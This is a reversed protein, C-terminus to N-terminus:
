EPLTIGLEALRAPPPVGGEDWGHRKYYEALLEEIVPLKGLAAGSELPDHVWRHPLGDPDGEYRVALLREFTVIREGLKAVEVGSFTRGLTASLLETVESPAVQYAMLALRRCVGAADIAAAFREHWILRPVAGRIAQPQSGDPLWPPPEPLLGEYSMAYRYDSGIPSAAYALALDPRARPDLAPLAMGKVQPAFTSSGYYVDQMEGVGLALLDRKEQRQGLRRLTAVVADGDGWALTGARSLGKEQCEMMFAIAASAAVVDLGLRVCLDNAIIITDPNAIGCAGGFGAIAELEPYAMPEGNRRIYTTACPLPCGDCAHTERRGRQALVGRDIAQAHPIEGEGGNKYSLMGQQQAAAAYYSSGGYQKIGAAVDSGAIRKAVSALVAEVRGGDAPALTATGRVAIAKVRKQAMVRGTGAPEAPHMGDAVISAYAVGAEGAPGVCVVSWDSGLESHIAQATAYTDLGLLAEASHFTVRDDEVSVWCWDPSQGELALMDVGARRLMAGWRGIAWSHALLGTLPSRTTAIFGGGVSGIAGVLPGASFILQNAPSTPAVDPSVRQGLLWAAAGRGGLFQQEVEPPLAERMSSQTNLIIRLLSVPM